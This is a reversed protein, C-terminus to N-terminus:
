AATEYNVPLSIIRDDLCAATYHLAQLIDEEELEPYEQLLEQRDAYTAVLEIVRRVTLRMNRICPQGNIQAPNVTIRDFVM